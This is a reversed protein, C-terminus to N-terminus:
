ASSRTEATVYDGCSIPKVLEVSVIKYGQMTAQGFQVLNVAKLVESKATEYAKHLQEFQNVEITLVNEFARGSGGQHNDWQLAIYKVLLIM